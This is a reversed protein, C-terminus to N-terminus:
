KATPIYFGQTTLNMDNRPGQNAIKQYFRGEVDEQKRQYWQDFAVPVFQDQLM